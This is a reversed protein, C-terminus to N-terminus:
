CASQSDARALLWTAPQNLVAMKATSLRKGGTKTMAKKWKQRRSM